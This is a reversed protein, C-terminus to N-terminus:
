AYMRNDGALEDRQRHMEKIERVDTIPFGTLIGIEKRWKHVVMATKHMVSSFHHLANFYNLNSGFVKAPNHVSEYCESCNKEYEGSTLHYIHEQYLDM